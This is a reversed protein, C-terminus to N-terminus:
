MARQARESWIRVRYINDNYGISAYWKWERHDSILTFYGESKLSTDHTGLFHLMNQFNGNVTVNDAQEKYREGHVDRTVQAIHQHLEDNHTLAEFGQFAVVQILGIFTACKFAANCM